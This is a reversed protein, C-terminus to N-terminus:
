LFRGPIWRQARALDVPVGIDLFQTGAIHALPRLSAINRTLFDSEFSFPDAPASDLINRQVAYAGGNILGPGPRGKEEFGVVRSDEVVVRGYRSTDDVSACAITLQAGASCHQDLMERYTVDLFTDGNLVIVDAARTERLALRIAGGTGLPADEVSYVIEVTGFTDGITAVIMQAQWGVSLVVRHFGEADLRRLLWWLFPRGAVKALPKPVGPPLVSQLRTGRGGALVIAEM